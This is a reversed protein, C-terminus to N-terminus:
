DLFWHDKQQLHGILLQGILYVKYVGFVPYSVLYRNIVVSFVLSGIIIFLIIHADENEVRYLIDM